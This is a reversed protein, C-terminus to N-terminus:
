WKEERDLSPYLSGCHPWGSLAHRLGEYIQPDTGLERGMYFVKGDAEVRLVEKSHNGFFAIARSSANGVDDDTNSFRLEKPNTGDDATALGTWLGLVFFTVIGSIITAWIHWPKIETDM